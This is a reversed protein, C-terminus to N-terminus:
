KGKQLANRIPDHHATFYYFSQTASREGLCFQFEIRYGGRPWDPGSLALANVKGTVSEGAKLVVPKLAAVDGTAGPVPYAKDQVRIVISEDWRINKGDTLLAPIEIEGDTPNTVTLSYEGDGDPNRFQIKKEPPVPAADFKVTGAVLVPRGTVACAQGDTKEGAKGPKGAAAWPSVLKGDAVTWGLPLAAAKVAQEINAPTADDFSQLVWNDRVFRLGIVSDGNQPFTPPAEQRVSYRASITKGLKEPGRLVKEPTIELEFTYVPPLSRGVPGATVKTFRGVVVLEAGGWKKIAEAKLGRFDPAAPPRVPVALAVALTLSFVGLAIAVRYM